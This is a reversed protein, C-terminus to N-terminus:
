TKIPINKINADLPRAAIVNQQTQSGYAGLFRCYITYLKEKNKGDFDVTVVEAPINEYEQGNLITKQPNQAM